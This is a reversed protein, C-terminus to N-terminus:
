CPPRDTRGSQVVIMSRRTLTRERFAGAPSHVYYMISGISFEDAIVFVLFTIRAYRASRNSKKVVNGVWGSSSIVFIRQSIDSPHRGNTRVVALATFVVRPPIDVCKQSTRARGHLYIYIYIYLTYTRRRRTPPSTFYCSRSLLPPLNRFLKPVVSFYLDDSGPATHRAASLFEM